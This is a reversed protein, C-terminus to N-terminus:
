APQGWRRAVEDVLALWQQCAPSELTQVEVWSVAFVAVIEGAGNRIPCSLSCGAGFRELWSASQGLDGAQQTSIALAPRDNVVANVIGLRTQSLSVRETAAQFERSVQPDFAPDTRFLLRELHEGVLKWAGLAWASHQQLLADALAAGTTAPSDTQLFAAVQAALQPDPVTMM